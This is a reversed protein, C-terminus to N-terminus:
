TKSTPGTLGFPNSDMCGIFAKPNTTQLLKKMELTLKAVGINMHGSSIYTKGHISVVRNDPTAEKTGVTLLHRTPIYVEKPFLFECRLIEPGLFDSDAIVDMKMIEHKSEMQTLIDILLAEKPFLEKLGSGFLEKSKTPCIGSDCGGDVSDFRWFSDKFSLRYWSLSNIAMKSDRFINFSKNM